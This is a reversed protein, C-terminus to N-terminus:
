VGYNSATPFPLGASPRKRIGTSGSIALISNDRVRIYNSLELPSKSIYAHLSGSRVKSGTLFFFLIIVKDCKVKGKWPKPIKYSVSVKTKLILIQQISRM